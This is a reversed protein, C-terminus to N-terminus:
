SKPELQAWCPNPNVDDLTRFLQGKALDYGHAGTAASAVGLAGPPTLKGRRRAM